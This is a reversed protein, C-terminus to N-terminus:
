SLRTDIDPTKEVTGRVLEEMFGDRPPKKENEESYLSEYFGALAEDVGLKRIDCQYLIQIARHRSRRRSAM